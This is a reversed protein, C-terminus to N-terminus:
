SPSPSPAPPCTSRRHLRCCCGHERFHEALQNISISVRQGPLRGPVRATRPRRRRRGKGQLLGQSRRPAPRRSSRGCRPRPGAALAQQPLDARGPGGDLFRSADSTNCGSARLSLTGSRPRGAFSPAASPPSPAAAGAAAEPRRRPHTSRRRHASPYTYGADSRSAPARPSPAGVAFARAARASTASTRRRHCLDPRRHRLDPRAPAM